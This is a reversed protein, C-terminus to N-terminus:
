RGTPMFAVPKGSAVFLVDTEATLPRKLARGDVSVRVSYAGGQRGEAQLWLTQQQNTEVDLPALAIYGTGVTCGDLLIPVLDNPLSVKVRLGSLRRAGANQVTIQFHATDGVAVSKRVCAIFVAPKDVILTTHKATAQVGSPVAVSVTQVYEGTRTVQAKFRLIQDAGAALRGIPWRLQDGGSTWEVPQEVVTVRWGTPVAWVATIREVAATGENAVRIAYEGESNQACIVPGTLAVDLLAELIRVRAVATAEHGRDDHATFHVEADGVGVAEAELPVMVTARSLLRGIKLTMEAADRPVRDVSRQRLLVVNELPQRGVNTLHVGLAIREGPRAEQPAECTMQLPSLHGLPTSHSPRTGDAVGSMSPPQPVKAGDVPEDLWGAVPEKSALPTPAVTRFVIPPAQIPAGDHGVDDAHPSRSEMEAATSGGVSWGWAFGVAVLMAVVVAITRVSM